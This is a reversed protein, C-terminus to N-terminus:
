GATFGSMWEERDNFNTVGEKIDNYMGALANKVELFLYFDAPALDLSHPSQQLKKIGKEPLGWLSKNDEMNNRNKIDNHDLHMGAHANKVKPFLIFDAAVMDLSYPPHQLRMIGQKPM